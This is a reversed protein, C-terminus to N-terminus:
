CIQVEIYALVPTATGPLNFTFAAPRRSFAANHDLNRPWVVHCM